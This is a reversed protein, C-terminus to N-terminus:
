NKVPKSYKQFIATSVGPKQDFQSKFEQFHCIDVVYTKVTVWDKDSRRDDYRQFEESSLKEVL